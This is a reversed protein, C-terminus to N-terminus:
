MEYTSIPLITVKRNQSSTLEQIIIPSWGVCSKKADKAATLLVDM